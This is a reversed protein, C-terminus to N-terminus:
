LLSLGGLNLDALLEPYTYYSFDFNFIDFLDFNTFSRFLDRYFRKIQDRTWITDGIIYNIQFIAVTQDSYSSHRSIFRHVMSDANPLLEFIQNITTYPEPM